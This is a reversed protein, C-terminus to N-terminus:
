TESLVAAHRWGHAIKNSKDLPNQVFNKIDAASAIYTKPICLSLAMEDVKKQMKEIQRLDKQSYKKGHLDEKVQNVRKQAEPSGDDRDRISENYIKLFSDFDQQAVEGANKSFFVKLDEPTLPLIHCLHNIAEDRFIHSRIRNYDLAKEERWCTIDQFLMLQKWTRCTNRARKWAQHPQPTFNHAQTLMHSDDLVYSLRHNEELNQYMLPAIKELYYVDLAAYGCQESNLPRQLWNTHQSTKDLTIGLYREVLHNYGVGALGGLYTFAIQTDFLPTPLEELERWFIELDQRACHFVKIFGPHRFLPLLTKLNLKETVPDVLYVQGQFAIQILALKPWYTEQRIFETDIAVFGGDKQIIADICSDLQSQSHIFHFSVHNPM